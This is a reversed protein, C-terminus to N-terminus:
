KTPPLKDLFETGLGSREGDYWLAAEFMDLEAEPRVYLATM